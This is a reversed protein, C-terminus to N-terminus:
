ESRRGGPRSGPMPRCGRRLELRHEGLGLGGLREHALRGGADYLAREGERAAGAVDVAARQRAGVAVDLGAGEHVREARVAGVVIEGADGEAFLGESWQSPARRQCCWAGGAGSGRENRSASPRNAVPTANTVAAGSPLGVPSITFESADTESSGGRSRM